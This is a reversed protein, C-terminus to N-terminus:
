QTVPKRELRAAMRRLARHQAVRIAGPRKKLLGAVQEVSLGAVVRLLLIEAQDQPLGRLLAEIAEGSSLAEVVVDGVDAVTPVGGSDAARPVVPHRRSARWFNAVQRRAVGFLWARFDEGGGEFGPLAKAAALWCESALDDAAAQARHALYRLLPPNLARYLCAMAVEDGGQAGRLAETLDVEGVTPCTPLFLGIGVGGQARDLFAPHM